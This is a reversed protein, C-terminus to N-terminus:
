RKHRRDRTISMANKEIDEDPTADGDDSRYQENERTIEGQRRLNVLHAHTEGAGMMIHFDTLDDFLESCVAWVDSPGQQELVALIQGARDQHQAVTEQVRASVDNIPAGHGPLGCDYDSAALRCLGSLYQGLPHNLRTDAGGINPTYDPLLTDGTLLDCAAPGKIQFCTSGATHGPTHIIEVTRDGLHFTEGDTFSTVETPASQTTDSQGISEFLQRRKSEPVQWAELSSQQDKMLERRESDDRILPADREHARVVAGGEQQITSSLGTHDPHWHTLFIEDIDAFGVGSQNLKTRLLREDTTAVTDILITKTREELVYVNNAGGIHDNQISLREM